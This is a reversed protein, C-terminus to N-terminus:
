THPEPVSGDRCTRLPYQVSGRSSGGGRPTWPRQLVECRWSSAGCAHVGHMHALLGAGLSETHAIHAPCHVAHMCIRPGVLGGTPAAACSAARWVEDYLQRDMAEPTGVRHLWAETPAGIAGVRSYVVHEGDGLWQLTSVAELAEYAADASGPGDYAGEGSPSQMVGTVCVTLGVPRLVATFADPHRGDNLLIAVKDQATNLRLDVIQHFADGFDGARRSSRTRGPCSHALRLHLKARQPVPSCTAPARV